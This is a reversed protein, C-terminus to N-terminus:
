RDIKRDMYMVQVSAVAAEGLAESHARREEKFELQTAALEAELKRTSIEVLRAM